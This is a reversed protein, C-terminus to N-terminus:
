KIKQLLLNVVHDTDAAGACIEIDPMQDHAFSIENMLPWRKGTDFSCVGKGGWMAVKDGWTLQTMVGPRWTTDLLKLRAVGRGYDSSKYTGVAMGVVAYRGRPLDQDWTIAVATWEGATLAQDAEGTILHTPSVSELVSRTARGSALWAFVLNYTNTANQVYSTLKEGPYLPLPNAMLNLFGSEIDSGLYSGSLYSRYPVKLSPQRLEGYKFTQTNDSLQVLGSLFPARPKVYIDDGSTRYIDDEIATLGALAAKAETQYWAVVDFPM